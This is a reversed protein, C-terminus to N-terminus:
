KGDRGPFNRNATSIVTHGGILGEHVVTGAVEAVSKVNDVNHPAAVVPFVNNLDINIESFYKAGDDAWVGSIKEDYFDNLVEDVPFVANKQAWKQLM